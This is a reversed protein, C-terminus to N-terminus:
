PFCVMLVLEVLRKKPWLGRLSHHADSLAQALTLLKSAGNMSTRAQIAGGYYIRLNRMRTGVLLSTLQRLSILYQYNSGQFPEPSTEHMRCVADVVQFLGEWFRIINDQIIRDPEDQFYSSLTEETGYELVAYCQYKKRPSGLMSDRPLEIDSDNTARM